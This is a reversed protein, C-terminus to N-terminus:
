IYKSKLNLHVKKLAVFSTDLDRRDRLQSHGKINEGRVKTVKSAHSIYKYGTM